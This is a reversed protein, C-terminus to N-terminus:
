FLGDDFDDDDASIEAPTSDAEGEPVFDRHVERERAMTYRAAIGGLLAGLPGAAAEPLEANHRGLGTLREAIEALTGGVEAECDVKGTTDQLIDAVALADQDLESMGERMRRGGDRICALSEALAQGADGPEDSESERIAVAASTLGEFSQAISAAITELTRAFGRIEAAVVALGRGEDGMRYCRLDTNWAMQQVDGTVRHVTALRRALNGATVSTVNSLRNSRTDAERLRETVSAVEGVSQELLHLFVGADEGEGAGDEEHLELLAATSPGIGRLSSALLRSERQFAEVTDAAQAALLALVHNAVVEVLDTDLGPPDQIFAGVDHLGDAVHELRQRTIDGIQLAGLATGVQGRIHRAAEAIRVARAAIGAQHQQLALADDALKRPIHPIVRACESALQREVEFMDPVAEGLQAIERAIGDMEHEGLDLKAFMTDAFDSFDGAGAAAVKINLGCIRLFRLTRNVQEIQAFLAASSREIAVLADRRGAQIAPLRALRDATGRMNGVAADAAERDLANTVGELAGILKEVIEYARALATGAAVFRADLGSAVTGLADRLGSLEHSDEPIKALYM